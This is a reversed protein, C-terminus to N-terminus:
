ARRARFRFATGRLDVTAESFGASRLRRPLGAPNIPAFTDGVHVMRFLFGRYEDTGVFTGGPCLVRAVEALLLDQRANTSVHHLMTFCVVTSFCRDPFPLRVADAQVVEVNTGVTRRSLARALDGDLEACTLRGVRERVVETAAGYGPGIELVVPGLDLGGLAWPLLNDAIIRRWYASRCIWHHIRNM